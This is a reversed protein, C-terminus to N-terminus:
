EVTLGLEQVIQNVTADLANSLDGQLMEGGGEECYAELARSAALASSSSVFLEYPRLELQAASYVFVRDYVYTQTTVDFLTAHTAVDLCLTPSCLRLVVRAIQANLISKVDSALAEAGAGVGTAIEQTPVGASEVATKLKTALAAMPDFKTLSEQLAKRCPEWSSESWKGGLYGLVTGVPAWLIAGVIPLAGGPGIMVGLALLGGSPLLGREIARRMWEPSGVDIKGRPVLLGVPAVQSLTGPTLPTSVYRQMIASLLPGFDKFSAEAVQKAAGEENAATADSLCSGYAFGRGGLWGAKEFTTCAINLSGVYVLPVNPPVIFHFEPIPEIVGKPFSTIRLYYAGPELLFAGWGSEAIETSPSFYPYSPVWSAVTTKVPFVRLPEGVDLNAVGFSWLTYNPYGGVTDVLVHVEKGDLSGTLRLLVIAKKNQRVSEYEDLSPQRVISCAPLLLVLVCLSLTIRFVFQFAASTKFM